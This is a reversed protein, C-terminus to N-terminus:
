TVAPRRNPLPSRPKNPFVKSILLMFPKTLLTTTVAMLLMASFVIPTIIHAELMINLVIVEMLGKTQMLAGARLSERLGLRNVYYEPLATGVMKGVIAVCTVMGFLLWVTSDNLSFSTQLGTLMFYFPMLVLMTFTDLVGHLRRKVPTPLMVGFIFAGLLYHVGIMQTIVACAFALSLLIALHAPATDSAIWGKRYGYEMLPRVVMYMIVLFGLTRLIINLAASTVSATSGVAGSVTVAALIAVFVWLMIDNLTAYGLVRQGIKTDILRTEILIASLVPLATVGFAISMGFIFVAPNAEIPVLRYTYICFALLAGLAMPVIMTSLSSIFFKYGGKAVRSVDFHLGTLFGLMCVGLWGIGTLLQMSSPTFLKSHLEPAFYGFISPGLVIGLFVQIVVLPMFKRVIKIQWLAYPIGILVAAQIFLLTEAHNYM